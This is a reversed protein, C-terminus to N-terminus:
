PLEATQERMVNWMRRVPQPLRDLQMSYRNSAGDERAAVLGEDALAKLHRSVNSQPLQMAQMLEAVSLEKRELLLLLRCRLPDAIAAFCAFVEASPAIMSIYPYLSLPM